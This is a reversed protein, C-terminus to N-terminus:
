PLPTYKTDVTHPRGCPPPPDPGHSRMHVPSSTDFVHNKTSTMFPHGRIGNEWQGQDISYNPGAQIINDPMHTHIFIHMYAHIYTPRYRQIHIYMYKHM